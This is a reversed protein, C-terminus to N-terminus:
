VVYPGGVRVRRLPEPKSSSEHKLMAVICDAPSQSRAISVERGGRLEYLEFSRYRSDQALVLLTNNKTSRTTWINRM